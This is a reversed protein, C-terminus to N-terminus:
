FGPSIARLISEPIQLSCTTLGKCFVPYQGRSGDTSPDSLCNKSTKCLNRLTKESLLFPPYEM